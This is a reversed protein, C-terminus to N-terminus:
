SDSTTSDYFRLVKLQQAKGFAHWWPLLWDLTSFTTATPFESLLQDWEVQLNSAGGRQGCRSSGIRAAADNLRAQSIELDPIISHKYYM